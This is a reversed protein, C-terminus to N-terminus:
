PKRTRRRRAAILNTAKTVQPLSENPWSAILTGDSCRLRKEAPVSLAFMARVEPNLRQMKLRYTAWAQTRGFREAAKCVKLKQVACMYALADSIEIDSVKSLPQRGIRPESRYRAVIDDVAAPTLELAAASAKLSVCRM